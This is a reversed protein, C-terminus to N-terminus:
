RRGKIPLPYSPAVRAGVKRILFTVHSGGGKWIHTKEDRLPKKM